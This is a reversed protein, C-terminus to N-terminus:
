RGPLKWRTSTPADLYRHAATILAAYDAESMARRAHMAYLPNFTLFLAAVWGLRRDRAITGIAYIALCGLAGFVVSPRRAAVLAPSFRMFRASLTCRMAGPVSKVKLMLPMPALIHLPSRLIGSPSTNEQGTLFETFPVM